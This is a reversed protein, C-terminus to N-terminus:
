LYFNREIQSLLCIAKLIVVSLRYASYCFCFHQFLAILFLTQLSLHMCIKSIVSFIIGRIDNIERYDITNKQIDSESSCKLKPIEVDPVIILVKLSILFHTQIEEAYCPRWFEL